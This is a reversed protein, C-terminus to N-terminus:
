RGTVDTDRSEVAFSAVATASEGAVEDIVELRVTYEGVPYGSLPLALSFSQRTLPAPFPNQGPIEKFRSGERLVEGRLRVRNTSNSPSLALGYAQVYLYLVQDALYARTINPVVRMDGHQFPRPEARADLPVQEIHSALTLTSLQLGQRTLDPLAVEAVARGPKDSVNDRALVVLRYEGAPALLQFPQLIQTGSLAQLEADTLTFNLRKEDEAAITEGSELAVYLDISFHHNDGVPSSVLDDYELALTIQAATTGGVGHYYDVGSRVPLGASFRVETEVAGLRSRLDKLRELRLAPIELINQIQQQFDLFDQAVLTSDRFRYTLFREDYITDAHRRLAYVDLPNNAYGFQRTAIPAASDLDSVLEFDGTGQFDVFSLDLVGPLSPHDPLNYTWVESAREYGDRGTPNRQLQHPPGLIIYVRGRDTLWGPRGAHFRQTAIAFRELHERRYENLATGPTPDRIEWFREIFALKQQATPLAEFIREEEETIIYRVYDDVWRQLAEDLEEPTAEWGHASLM